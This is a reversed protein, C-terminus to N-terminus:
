IDNYEMAPIMYDNLFAADGPNTKSGSVFATATASGNGGGESGSSDATTSMARYHKLLIKADDQQSGGLACGISDFWFLKAAQITEPSLQEYKLACAWEAITYSLPRRSETPQSAMVIDIKGNIFKIPGNLNELRALRFPILILELLIKQKAAPAISAAVAAHASSVKMTLLRRPGSPGNYM